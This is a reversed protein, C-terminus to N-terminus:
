DGLLSRRRLEAVFGVVDATAQEQTIGYTERLVDALESATCPHALREWLVRGSGNLKLYVSGKLDLVVLEDGIIQWTLNDHRLRM